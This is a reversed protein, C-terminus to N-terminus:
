IFRAINSKCAIHSSGHKYLQGGSSHKPEWHSDALNKVEVSHHPSNFIVAPPVTAQPNFIQSTDSYINRSTPSLM